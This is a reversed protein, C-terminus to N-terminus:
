ANIIGLNVYPISDVVRVYDNTIKAAADSVIQNAQNLVGALGELKKIKAEFIPIQKQANSYEPENPETIEYSMGNPLHIYGGTGRYAPVAKANKLDQRYRDLEGDDLYADDGIYNSVLTLASIYADQLTLAAQMRLDCCDSLKMLRRKEAEWTKGKVVDQELNIMNDIKNKLDMADDYENKLGEGIQGILTNGRLIGSIDSMSIKGAHEPKLDGFLNFQMFSPTNIDLINANDISADNQIYNNHFSNDLQTVADAYKNDLYIFNNLITGVNAADSVVIGLLSSSAGFLLKNTMNLSEPFGTTNDDFAQYNIGNNFSTKNVSGIIGDVADTIDIFRYLIEDDYKELLGSLKDDSRLIDIRTAYKDEETMNEEAKTDEKTTKDETKNSYRDKKSSLWAILAAQPNKGKDDIGDSSSLLTVKRAEDDINETDTNEYIKDWIIKGTNDRVPKGTDPDIRPIATYKIGTVRAPTTKLTTYDDGTLWDEEDFSLTDSKGTFVDMFAKVTERLAAAHREEPDIRDNFDLLTYTLPVGCEAALELRDIEKPPTQLQPQSGYTSGSSVVNFNAGTTAFKEWESRTLGYVQAGDRKSADLGVLGLNGDFITANTVEFGADTLANTALVTAAENLSHAAVDTVGINISSAADSIYEVVNDVNAISNTLVLMRDCGDKALEAFPILDADTGSGTFYVTSDILEGNYGEPVYVWLSGKSGNKTTFDVQQFGLDEKMYDKVIDVSGNTSM